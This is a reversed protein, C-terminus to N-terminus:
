EVTLAIEGGTQINAPRWRSNVWSTQSSLRLLPLSTRVFAVVTRAHFCSLSYHFLDTPFVNTESKPQQKNSQCSKRDYNRYKKLCLIM